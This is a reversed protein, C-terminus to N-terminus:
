SGEAGDELLRSFEQALLFRDVEGEQEPQDSPDGSDPGLETDPGAEHEPDGEVDPATEIEPEPAPALTPQPDPLLTPGADPLSLEPEPAPVPEPHPLSLEPEPELAPVPEPHPLSLEPEPGPEPDLPVVPERSPALTVESVPASALPPPSPQVIAQEHPALIWTRDETRRGQPTAEEGEHPALIWSVPRREPPAEPTAAEEEPALIWSLPRPRRESSGSHDPQASSTTPPAATSAQADAPALPAGHAPQGTGRHLQTRPKSKPIDAVDPLKVADRKTRAEEATLLLQQLQDMVLGPRAGADALAFAAYPGRRVYVWIEDGFEAFGKEPDGLAAFRLWARQVPSEDSPPFSGVVLGDRTLIICGRLQGVSVAIRAALASFEDM